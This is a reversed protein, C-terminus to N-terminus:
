EGLIDVTDFYKLFIEERDGYESESAITVVIEDFDDEVNLVEGTQDAYAIFDGVQIQDATVTDIITM